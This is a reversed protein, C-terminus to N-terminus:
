IPQILVILLWMVPAQFLKVKVIKSNHKLSKSMHFVFRKTQIHAVSVIPLLHIPTLVNQLFYEANLSEDALFNSVHLRSMNWFLSIMVKSTNILRRAVEPSDSDSALWLDKHENICFFCSKDGILIFRWRLRKANQLIELLEQSQRLHDNRQQGSL